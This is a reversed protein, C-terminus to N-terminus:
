KSSIDNPLKALFDADINFVGPMCYRVNISLYLYYFWDLHVVFIGYMRVNIVYRNYVLVEKVQWSGIM